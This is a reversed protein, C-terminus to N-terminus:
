KKNRGVAYYAIALFGFVGLLLILNQTTSDQSKEQQAKVLEFAFDEQAKRKAIESQDRIQQQALDYQGYLALRENEESKAQIVLNAGIEAIKVVWTAPNAGSGGSEAAAQASEPIVGRFAFILNSLKKVFNKDLIHQSVANNVQMFTADLPLDAYGEEKLFLIVATKDEVIFNALIKVANDV